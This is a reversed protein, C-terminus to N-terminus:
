FGTKELTDMHLDLIEQIIEVKTKDQDYALYEIEDLMDQSIRFNVKCKKIGSAYRHGFENPNWMNKGVKYKYLRSYVNLGKEIVSIKSTKEGRMVGLSVAYNLDDVFKQSVNLGIQCYKGNEKSGKKIM